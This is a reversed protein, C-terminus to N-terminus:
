PEKSAELHCYLGNMECCAGQKTKCEFQITSHGIAYKETLLHTLAQLIPASDSPPLNDILVHCSLAYMGSAISWVHLDHIDQVGFVDKMDQVLHTLSIGQPVAELLINITERLIHWSGIAILFAIGISLLSDVLTWGSLLVIVGAVVVGVSVVVDGFVHLMAARVNLTNGGKNLGFGIFLNVIIGVAAAAFMILPQVSQPHEIRQIAEWTIGLAILLLTLANLLAALIGVRHYGFTKRENSPREAQSTAFWALGLAILDTIVHGADSILALSHAFVGGVVEVLLIVITLFFAVRLSSKAMNHTHNHHHGAHGHGVLKLKM